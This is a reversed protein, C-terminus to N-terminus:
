PYLRFLAAHLGWSRIILDTNLTGITRIKNTQENNECGMAGLNSEIEGSLASGPEAATGIVNRPAPKLLEETTRTLPSDRGVVTTSEVVKRLTIGSLRRVVTTANDIVTNLESVAADEWGSTKATYEDDGGVTVEIFGTAARRPVVVVAISVPVFKTPALSTKLPVPMVPM